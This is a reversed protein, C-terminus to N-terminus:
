AGRLLVIAGLVVAAILMLFAYHYVFGSQVKVALKSGFNLL